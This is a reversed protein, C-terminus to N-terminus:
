RPTSALAVDVMKATSEIRELDGDRFRYLFTTDGTGNYTFGLYIEGAKAGAAVTVPGDLYTDLVHIPATWTQEVPDYFAHLIEHDTLAEVRVWAVAVRGDPMAAISAHHIDVGPIDAPPSWVGAVRTMYRGGRIAMFEAGARLAIVQAPRDVASADLVQPAQWGDTRTLSTLAGTSEDSFVYVLEGDRAALSGGRDTALTEAVPHWSAGDFIAHHQLTDTGRYILHVCRGDAAVERPKGPLGISRGEDWAGDKHVYYRMDWGAYPQFVALGVGEATVAVGRGDGPPPVLDVLTQGDFAHWVNYLGSFPANFMALLLYCDPCAPSVPACAPGPEDPPPTSTTTPEVDPAQSSAEDGGADSAGPDPVCAALAVLLACSRLGARPFVSTRDIARIMM